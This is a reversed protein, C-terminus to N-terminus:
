LRKIVWYATAIVVTTPVGIFKLFRIFSQFAHSGDRVPTMETIFADLKKGHVEQCAKLDDCKSNLTKLEEM